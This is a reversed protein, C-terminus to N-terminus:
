NRTPKDIKSYVDSLILHRLESYEKAIYGSRLEALSLWSKYKEKGLIEWRYTNLVDELGKYKTQVEILNKRKQLWKSHLVIYDNHPLQDSFYNCAWYYTEIAETYFYAKEYAVALTCLGGPSVKILKDKGSLGTKIQKLIRYLEDTKIGIKVKFDSSKRLLDEIRIQKHPQENCQIKDKKHTLGSALDKILYLNPCDKTCNCYIKDELWYVKSM